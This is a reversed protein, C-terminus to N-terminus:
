RWRCRGNEYQAALILFVMVIGFVFAATSTSGTRKEQLGPRDLFTAPRCHSQGRRRGDSRWAPASAPAGNGMIKAATFGNFRELQEAGVVQKVKIM